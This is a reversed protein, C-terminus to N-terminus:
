RSSASVGLFFAKMKDEPTDTSLVRVNAPVFGRADQEQMRNWDGDIPNVILGPVASLLKPLAIQQLAGFPFYEFPIERDFSSTRNKDETMLRFSAPLSLPRDVFQRYSLFGDRLIFFQVPRLSLAYTAALSANHGRAYLAIPTKGFATAIRDTDWGQRAVFNEGLLLSVAAAWGRKSIALEGIGRPDLGCVAWGRALAHDALPDSMIAEKGRDDIAIL